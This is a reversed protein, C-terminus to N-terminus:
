QLVSGIQVWLDLTLTLLLWFQSLLSLVWWSFVLWSSFLEFFPHLVHSYATQSIRGSLDRSWSLGASFMNANCVSLLDPISFFSSASCPFIFLGFVHVSVRHYISLLLYSAWVSNSMLKSLSQIWVHTIIKKRCKNCWCM